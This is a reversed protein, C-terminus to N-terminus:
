SLRYCCRWSILIIGWWFCFLLKTVLTLLGKFQDKQHNHHVKNEFFLIITIIENYPISTFLSDFELSPLFSIILKTWITVYFSLHTKSHTIKPPEHNSLPNSCTHTQITPLKLWVMRFVLNHAYIMDLQYIENLPECIKNELNVM